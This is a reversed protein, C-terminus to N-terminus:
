GMQVSKGLLVCLHKSGPLIYHHIKCFGYPILHSYKLYDEVVRHSIFFCEKMEARPNYMAACVDGFYQNELSM